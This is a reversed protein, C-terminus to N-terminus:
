RLTEDQTHLEFEYTETNNPSSMQFVSFQQGKFIPSQALSDIYEPILETRQSMGQITISKGGERLSFNNLWVHEIHRESLSALTASFGNQPTLSDNALHDFIAEQQKLQQQLSSLKAQLIPQEGYTLIAQKLSNIQQQKENHQQQTQALLNQQENLEHSTFFHYLLILATFVLTVLLMQRADYIIVEPKFEEQYFNIQQM